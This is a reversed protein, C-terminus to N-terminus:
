SGVHEWRCFYTRLYVKYRLEWFEGTAINESHSQYQGGGGGTTSRRGWFLRKQPRRGWKSRTVDCEHQVSSAKFVSVQLDSRSDPILEYELNIEKVTRFVRKQDAQLYVRSIHFGWRDDSIWKWTTWPGILRKPHNVDTNTKMKDNLEIPKEEREWREM